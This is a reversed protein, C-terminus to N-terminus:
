LPPPLTCLATPQRWLVPLVSAWGRRGRCAGPGFICDGQKASNSGPPPMAAMGKARINWFTTFAQCRLHPLSPSLFPALMM